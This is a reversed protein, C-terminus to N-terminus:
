HQAGGVGEEYYCKLQKVLSSSSGNGETLVIKHERDKQVVVLLCVVLFPM